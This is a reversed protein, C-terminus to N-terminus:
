GDASRRAPLKAPLPKGEWVHDLIAEWEPGVAEESHHSLAFRRSREGIRRRLEPDRVLRRLQDTLDELGTDVIPCEDLGGCGRVEPPMGRLASLVPKGAALGEIAFMAYGAIFQDAVIDATEIAAHVDTNPQMEILELKVKLGEEQLVEISRLLGVTGKVHRHNPAHLVVVEGSRGDAEGPRGNPRWVDTDIALQTAWIVDQRPMYGNQYNRVVVDAWDAFRDVRAKTKPALEGFIPYDKLLEGETPGLFGPVAIDAGYPFVVLKKGAIRLIPGELGQLRTHRLFGGDFFSMVVDAHLLVWAFPRYCNFLSAIRGGGMLDEMHLDFDSKVNIRALGDVFTTSPYGLKTLSASWFKINILPAPGWVVRPRRGATRRLTTALRACLALLVLGLASIVAAAPPAFRNLQLRAARIM